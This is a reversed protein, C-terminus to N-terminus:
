WPEEPLDKRRTVEFGQVEALGRAEFMYFYIGNIFFGAGGSTELFWAMCPFRDPDSPSGDVKADRCIAKVEDFDKKHLLLWKGLLGSAKQFKIDHVWAM